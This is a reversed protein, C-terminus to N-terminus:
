PGPISRVVILTDRHPGVQGDAIAEINGEHVNGDDDTFTGGPHFYVLLRLVM